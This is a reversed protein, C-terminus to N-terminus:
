FRNLYSVLNDGKELGLKKRLRYRAIKLSQASQFTISSIEKTSMNLRLFACLRLENPSLSQHTRNLNNYFDSHVENFRVEFEEWADRKISTDMDKILHKIVVKTSPDTDDSLDKLKDSMTAIFENKKLLYLVNTTLERNKYEIEANLKESELELNRRRLTAKKAKSRYYYYIGLLILVLIAVGAILRTITTEKKLLENEIKAQEIKQEALKKEFDFELQLKLLERNDKAAILSDQYVQHIESYYRASDLKGISDYLNSLAESISELIPMYSDRVGLEYARLYYSKASPYNQMQFYVTALTYFTAVQRFQKFGSQDDISDLHVKSLFLYKLADEYNGEGLEIEGGLAYINNLGYHNNLEKQEIIAKEFYYKTSDINEILSFENTLNVLTNAYYYQEGLEQFLSGATRAYEIAKHSDGLMSHVNGINNSFKALFLLNGASEALLLGKQNYKL